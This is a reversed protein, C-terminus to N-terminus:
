FGVSISLAPFISIGRKRGSSFQGSRQFRLPATSQAFYNDRNLVKLVEGALTLKWRSFVFAKNIRVDARSYDPLRVRNRDPGLAYANPGTQRIFGPCPMGTGYRWQASLSM